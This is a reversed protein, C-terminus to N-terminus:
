KEEGILGCIKSLTELLKGSVKKLKDPRVM